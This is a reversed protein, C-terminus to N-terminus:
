LNVVRRKEEATWLIVLLCSTEFVDVLQVFQVDTGVIGVRRVGGIRGIGGVVV